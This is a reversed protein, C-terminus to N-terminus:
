SNVIGQVLVCHVPSAEEPINYTDTQLSDRINRLIATHEDESDLIRYCNVVRRIKFNLNAYINLFCSHCVTAECTLYMKRGKRQNQKM